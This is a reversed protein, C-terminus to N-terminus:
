CNTGEYRTEREKKIQRALFTAVIEIEDAYMNEVGANKLATLLVKWSRIIEKM